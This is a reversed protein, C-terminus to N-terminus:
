LLAIIHVLFFPERLSTLKACDLTGWGLPEFTGGMAEIYFLIRHGVVKGGRIPRSRDIARDFARFKLKLRTCTEDFDTM